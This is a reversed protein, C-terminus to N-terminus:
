IYKKCLLIIRGKRTEGGCEDIIWKGFGRVAISDGVELEKTKKLMASHNVFVKKEDFLRTAQERSLHLLGGVIADARLSAVTLRCLEFKQPPLEFDLDVASLTVSNRGISTVNQILFDKIQDLVFALVVGDRAIIDGIMERRIGTAMLAGLVDRNSVDSLDRGEFKLLVIPFCLKLTEEELSSVALIKRECESQGGFLLYSAKAKRCLSAAIEGEEASLFASFAM